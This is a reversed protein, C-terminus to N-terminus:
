PHVVRGEQEPHLGTPDWSEAMREIVPIIEEDREARARRICEVAPVNFLVFETKWRPSVWEARRAPRNNCADLIVRHHGAEFLAAVMLRAVWWVFPETPAYFRRGHVALRIADPSVVPEGQKRAWTTKGSRPLGVTLILVPLGVTRTPEPLTSM